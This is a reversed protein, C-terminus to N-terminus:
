ENDPIPTAPAVKGIEGKTFKYICYNGAMACRGGDKNELVATLEYAEGDSKYSYYYKDPKPDKIPQYLFGGTEMLQFVGSSEDSIKEAGDVKPYQGNNNKAYRELAASIKMIDSIRRNDREDESSIKNEAKPTSTPSIKPTLGSDNKVITCGSASFIFIISILIVIKKSPM